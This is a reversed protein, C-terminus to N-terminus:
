EVPECTEGEMRYIFGEDPAPDVWFKGTCSVPDLRYFKTPKAMEVFVFQNYQPRPGYHCTQTTRLLAFFQISKGQQLPYMFGALSVKRGDLNKIGEPPSANDDVEYEWTMLTSFTLHLGRTPDVVVADEDIGITKHGAVAKEQRVLAKKGKSDGKKDAKEQAHSAQRLGQGLCIVAMFLIVVILSKMNM